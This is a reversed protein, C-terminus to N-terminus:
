VSPQSGSAASTVVYNVQAKPARSDAQAMAVAASPPWGRTPKSFLRSRASPATAGSLAASTRCTAEAAASIPRGSASAAVARRNNAPPLQYRDIQDSHLM